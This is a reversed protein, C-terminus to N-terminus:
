PHSRCTMSTRLRGAPRAAVGGSDLVVDLLQGREVDRAGRCRGDVVADRRGVQSLGFAEDYETRIGRALDLPDDNRKGIPEPDTEAGVMRVALGFGDADRQGLLEAALRDAPLEPAILLQLRMPILEYQAGKRGDVAPADEVLLTDDGGESRRAVQDEFM